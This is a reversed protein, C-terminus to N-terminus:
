PTVVDVAKSPIMITGPANDIGGFPAGSLISGNPHIFYTMTM